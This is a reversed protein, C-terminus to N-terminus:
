SAVELNETIIRDLIKAANDFTFGETKLKQRLSLAASVDPKTLVDLVGDLFARGNSTLLERVTTRPRLYEEAPAGTMLVIDGWVSALADVPALVVPVGIRCCELISTSWTECPASCSAAFSFCSAESIERLLDYRSLRGLLEVGGAAQAKELNQLLLKAREGRVSREVYHGKACGMVDGVVHLTAGPVRERIDPWVDFVLHLGRDPSTHYICRGPVPSWEVDDLGEIANPLVAWKGHPDFGKKLHDVAWQCPATNVDIWDFAVYPILTHHSGIRLKAENGVLMTVDYFGLAVDTPPDNPKRQDLRVYEVGDIEVRKTTWTSFARVKYNGLRATAKVLGVFGARCGGGMAESGANAPNMPVGGAASPSLFFDITIM